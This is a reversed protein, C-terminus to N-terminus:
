KKTKNIKIRNNADTVQNNNSGSNVNNSSISMNANTKKPINNDISKSYGKEKVYKKFEEKKKDVSKKDVGSNNSNSNNTKIKDLLNNVEYVLNQKTNINVKKTGTGEQNAMNANLNSNSNVPETVM